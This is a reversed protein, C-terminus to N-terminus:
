KHAVCTVFARLQYAAVRYLSNRSNMQVFPCEVSLPYNLVQFSYPKFSFDIDKVLQSLTGM